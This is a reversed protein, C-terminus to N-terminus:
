PTPIMWSVFWDRARANRSVLYGFVGSVLACILIPVASVEYDSFFYGYIFLLTLGTAIVAVFSIFDAYLEIFLNKM